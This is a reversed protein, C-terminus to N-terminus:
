HSFLIDAQAIRDTELTLTVENKTLDVYHAMKVMLRWTPGTLTLYKVSALLSSLESNVSPCPPRAHQLEHPRSSNSVVSHSFQVSSYKTYIAQNKTQKESQIIGENAM